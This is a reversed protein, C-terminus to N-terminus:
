IENVSNEELSDDEPESSNDEDHTATNSVNHIQLTETYQSEQEDETSKSAENDDDSTTDYESEQESM